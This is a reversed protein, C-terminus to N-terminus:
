EMLIALVNNLWGCGVLEFVTSVKLTLALNPGLDSEEKGDHAPRIETGLSRDWIVVISENRALAGLSKISAHITWSAGSTFCTPVNHLHTLTSSQFRLMGPQRRRDSQDPSKKQGLVAFDSVVSTKRALSWTEVETESVGAKSTQPQRKRMSRTSRGKKRPIRRCRVNESLQDIVLCTLRTQSADETTSKNSTKM